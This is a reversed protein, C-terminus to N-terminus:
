RKKFKIVKKVNDIEFSAVEDLVGNGLLVPANQNLAVSASVNQLVISNGEGIEVKRLIIEGNEVVSGDAITSLSTGVIDGESFQGNKYM